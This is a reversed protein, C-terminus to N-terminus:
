NRVECFIVAGGKLGDSLHWKPFYNRNKTLMVSGMFVSQPYNCLKKTFSVPSICDITVVTSWLILIFKNMLKCIFGASLCANSKWIKFGGL